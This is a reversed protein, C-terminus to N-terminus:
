RPPVAGQTEPIIGEAKMKEVFRAARNYGIRLRRQIFSTSVYGAEKVIQVAREYLEVDKDDLDDEFMEEEDAAPGFSETIYQPEGQKKLFHTVEKIEKDTVLAGHIRHVKGGTPPQYLMDGHGLLHEAGGSDMITRADVRSTVQFAIRSTFNNKIVGTIVDVSPRQTAVILHIGAARSMQALRGICDEVDKAAVAMLDALEDVLVVIFPLPEPQAAGDLELSLQKGGKRVKQNYAELNRVGLKALLIYRREMERVAWMLAFKARKPETVVPAVLHPIGNYCSFELVKPDILLLRLDEPTAKALMSLIMVNLSVSKGAGTAGAVLLHPMKALDAVFPEGVIDKGLAMTMPSSANKFAESELMERLYVTQRQHNPVEIGVVGKGPIPAVIRVNGGRLALALDDALAAIQSIKVGPAPEFEYMSIVPGPEVHVVRGKVGFDRLKDELLKSSAELVKTDVKAADGGPPELLEVPPAAYNRAVALRLHKRQKAPKPEEGDVEEGESDFSSGGEVTPEEGEMASEQAVPEGEPVADVTPSLAGEPQALLETPLKISPGQTKKMVGRLSRLGEWLRGGVPRAGKLAGILMVVPSVRLNMMLTLSGLFVTLLITGARNLYHEFFRGLGYGLLGAPLDMGLFPTKLLPTMLYLGLSLSLVLLTLGGLSGAQARFSSNLVLRLGSTVLMLPLIYSSLGFFQALLDAWTAGVIGGWNLAQERLFVPTSSSFAFLSPDYSDYSALAILTFAGTLILGVGLINRRLDFGGEAARKKKSRDESM